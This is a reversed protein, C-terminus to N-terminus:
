EEDGETVYWLPEQPQVVTIFLKKFRNLFEKTVDTKLLEILISYGELKSKKYKTVNQQNIFNLEETTQTTPATGPNLASNYIASGGTLIENESLARLKDQIELRKEWTPGYMFITALVGAKFQNEDSSAISSNGYQSYLLFYLTKLSQETIKKPLFDEDYYAKFDEYKSWIESFTRTRYNGYLSSNLMKM